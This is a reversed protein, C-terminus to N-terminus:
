RSTSHEREFESLVKLAPLLQDVMQDYHSDRQRYPDIVDLAGNLRDRAVHRHLSAVKLLSAWRDDVTAPESGHSFSISPIGGLESLVAAFERVTYTRKLFRPSRAVINARHEDTLTLVLDIGNTSDATLQKATFGASAVGVENLKNSAREDMAHGVLAHTGASRITFARPSIRDFENQLFLEAYPSRCINGTCVTLIKIMVQDYDCQDTPSDCAVRPQFQCILCIQQAFLKLCHAHHVPSVHM